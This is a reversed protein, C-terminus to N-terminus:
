IDFEQITTSNALAPLPSPGYKNEDLHSNEALFILLPIWGVVPIFVLLYWWGSRSTDHLRRVSVAITPILTALQFLGSALGVRSESDWTGVLIDLRRFAFIIALNILVFTWCEKRRARGAFVAYKRLVQFYWKM